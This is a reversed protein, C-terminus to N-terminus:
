LQLCCSTSVQISGYSREGSRPTPTEVTQRRYSGTALPAAFRFQSTALLLALGVGRTVRVFLRWCLSMPNFAV